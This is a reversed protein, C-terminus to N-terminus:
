TLSSVLRGALSVEVGYTKEKLSARVFVVAWYVAPSTSTKAPSTKVWKSM